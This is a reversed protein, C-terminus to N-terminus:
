NEYRCIGPVKPSHVAFVAEELKRGKEIARQKFFEADNRYDLGKQFRRGKGSKRRRGPIEERIRRQPRNEGRNGQPALVVQLGVDIGTGDELFVFDLVFDSGVKITAGDSALCHLGFPLLPFADPTRPGRANLRPGDRHEKAEQHVYPRTSASNQQLWLSGAPM